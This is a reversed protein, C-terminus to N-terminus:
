KTTTGAAISLLVWHGPSDSRQLAASSTSPRDDSPATDHKDLVHSAFSADLPPEWLAASPVVVVLTAVVLLLSAIVTRVQTAPLM